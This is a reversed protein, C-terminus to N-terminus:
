HLDIEPREHRETYTPPRKGNALEGYVQLWEMIVLEDNYDAMFQRTIHVIQYWGNAARDRIDCYQAADAPEWLKFTKRKFDYQESLEEFETKTLALADTNRLPPM